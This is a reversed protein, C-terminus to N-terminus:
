AATQSSEGTLQDLLRLAADTDRAAIHKEMQRMAPELVSWAPTSENVSRIASDATAAFSAGDSKLDETIKEGPRLGIIEIDVERSTPQGEAQALRRALEYVRVPAGMEPVLVEGGWSGLLTRLIYHVAEEPTLFYRQVDPHTITFPRGQELQDLLTSSVSADSGLVNGLRLSACNMTAHRSAFATIIEEALRKSKGMIGAPKAAKDTSILLLSAAQRAAALKAVTWTGLVNNRIAELPHQEMLPVHKYAAAHIIIDPRFRQMIENLAAEECIDGVRLEFPQSPFNRSLEDQLQFVGNERRDVGIVLPEKLMLLYACLRRGISGAAGTILVRRHAFSQRFQAEYQSEAAPDILNPRNLLFESRSGTYGAFQLPRFKTAVERVAETVRESEDATLGPYLPISVLRYFLEMALPCDRQWEVSQQAFASHLPIPIFHVSAAIGRQYLEDIFADRDIRLKDLRLRLSYLHWSHDHQAAAPPLELEDLHHLRDHYFVAFKRRAELFAPMKRLQALGVAAQLDSLNYKWGTEVVDYQWSRSKLGRKWVDRDIGHLSLRRMRAAIDERPATIMGGEASTMSKTAYFSFVVADSTANISGSTTGIPADRYRSGIAHAADEIVLLDHSRALRWLADMDCPLGGLHVPIIARTRPTIRAAVSAPDINGDPGIDAMVPMAGAHLIAQVTACFTLPSTIVEDGRGVGFAEMALHLGATGSNAAVAHRAQVFTRFEEELQAVKPGSTLWGSALVEAVQEQEETGVSPRHFPIPQQQSPYSM